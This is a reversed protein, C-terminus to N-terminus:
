AQMIPYTKNNTYMNIFVASFAWFLHMIYDDELITISLYPASAVASSNDM